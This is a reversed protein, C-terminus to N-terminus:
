KIALLKKIDEVHDISTVRYHIWGGNGCPFRNDIYEQTYKQLEPYISQYQRDSLRMMITFANNEAFVNCILKTKVKWAVGWGYSNGYPFVIKKTIGEKKSLWDNLEIFLAKQEGCYAAMEDFTPTVTKDLMREYM